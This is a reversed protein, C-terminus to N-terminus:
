VPKALSMRPRNAFVEEGPEVVLRPKGPEEFVVVLGPGGGGEAGALVLGGRDDGKQGRAQPEEM